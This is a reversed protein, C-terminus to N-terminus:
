HKFMKACSLGYFCEINCTDDHTWSKEIVDYCYTAETRKETYEEDIFVHIKYGVTITKLSYCENNKVNSYKKLLKFKNSISGFVECSNGLYKSIVFMKNGISVTDHNYRKQIM